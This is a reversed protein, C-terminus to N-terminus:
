ADNGQHALQQGPSDPAERTVAKSALADKLQMLHRGASYLQGCGGACLLAGAVVGTWALVSTPTLAVAITGALWVGAGFGAVGIACAAVHTERSLHEVELARDVLVDGRVLGFVLEKLM